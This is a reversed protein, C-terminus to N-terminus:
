GLAPVEHRSKVVVGFAACAFTDESVSRTGARENEEITFVVSGDEARMYTGQANDTYDIGDHDLRERFEGHISGNALSIYSKLQEMSTVAHPQKRLKM